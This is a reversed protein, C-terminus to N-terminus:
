GIGKPTAASPAETINLWHLELRRDYISLSNPKSLDHGRSCSHM